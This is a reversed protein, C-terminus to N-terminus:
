FALLGRKTEVSLCFGERLMQRFCLNTEEDIPEKLEEMEPVNVDFAKLEVTPFYEEEEMVVYERVGDEGEEVGIVTESASASYEVGAEVRIVKPVSRRRSKRRWRAYIMEKLTRLHFSLTGKYTMAVLNPLLIEHPEVYEGQPVQILQEIPERIEDTPVDVWGPAVIIAERNNRSRRGSGASGLNLPSTISISNDTVTFNSLNESTTTTTTAAPDRDDEDLDYSYTKVSRVRREPNMKVLFKDSLGEVDAQWSELVLEELVEGMKMIGGGSADSAGAALGTNPMSPLISEGMLWGIITEEARGVSPVCIGLKRLGRGAGASTADASPPSFGWTWGSREGLRTIEGLVGGVNGTTCKFEVKYVKPVVLASMFRVLNGQDSFISFKQLNQLHLHKPRRNNHSSHFSSTHQFNFNNGQHHPQHHYHHAGPIHHTHFFTQISMMNTAPSSFIGHFNFSIMGPTCSLVKLCDDLPVTRLELHTVNTWPLPIESPTLSEPLIVTRLSPAQSLMYWPSKNRAAAASSSSTPSSNTTNINIPGPNNNIHIAAGNGGNVMVGNVFVGNQIVNVGGAGPQVTVGGGGGGGVGGGLNHIGGGANVTVVNGNGFHFAQQEVGLRGSRNLVLTDLKGLKGYVDRFLDQFCLNPLTSYFTHWQNSRKYLKALIDRPPYDKFYQLETEDRALTLVIFLDQTDGARLLWDDLLLVQKEYCGRSIALPITAWLERLGWALTRWASCIQGLVLPVPIRQHLPPPYIESENMEKISLQTAILMIKSIVEIPLEWTRSLTNRHNKLLSIRQQLSHLLCEHTSISNDIFSQDKSSLYTSSPISLAQTIEESLTGLPPMRPPPIFPTLSPPLSSSLNPFIADRMTVTTRTDEEATAQAPTASTSKKTPVYPRAWSSSAGSTGTPATATATTATTSAASGTAGAAPITTSTTATTSPTAAAPAAPKAKPTPTSANAANMWAYKGGLGAAQTAVANSMKKRVDESMNRATVGPGDKKRKKKAGGEEETVGGAGGNTDAAVGSASAAGNAQAALAAAHAATMEAREKRERRVKMEEEREIRELVALQKAVDSRLSIKWMPTDDNYFSAPRDFQTDTRHHSAAIMNTILDQLRARLALAVYNVADDPVRAVKHSTGITRMKTGLHITDFAPKHAQKRTRDEYPRYPQHQDHSRQLSEEEARLDVGASGLADNLTAVDTTDVSSTAAPATTATTATATTATNPVPTTTAAPRSLQAQMTQATLPPAYQYHGYAAQPYHSSYAQYHQYPITTAHTAGTTAWPTTAYTPATTAAPTAPAPTATTAAPQAVPTAPKTEETKMTSM